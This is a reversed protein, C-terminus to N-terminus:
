ALAAIIQDCSRKDEGRLADQCASLHNYAGMLAFHRTNEEDANSRPLYHAASVLKKAAKIAAIKAPRDVNIAVMNSLHRYGQTTMIMSM